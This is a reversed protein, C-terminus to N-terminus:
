RSGGPALAAYIPPALEAVAGLAGALGEEPRAPVAIRVLIADARRSLLIDRLLAARYSYENGYARSGIQHWYGVVLRQGRDHVVVAPLAQAQAPSGNLAVRLPVREILSVREQPYILNISPKRRSDDQRTFLAASVWAVRPGDRYTRRVAGRENPDIPLVWEPAGDTATWAGLVAPLKYLVAAGTMERVPPAFYLAAAAAGLLALVLALRWAARM